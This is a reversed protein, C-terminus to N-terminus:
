RQPDLESPRAPRARSGATARGAPGDDITRGPRLVPVSLLTVITLGLVTAYRVTRPLRSIVYAAPAAIVIALVAIGTAM